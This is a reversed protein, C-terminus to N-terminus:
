KMEKMPPPPLPHWMKPKNVHKGFPRGDWASVIQGCEFDALMMGCELDPADVLFQGRAPHTEIPQWGEPVYEMAEKIAALACDHLLLYANSSTLKCDAKHKNLLARAQEDTTM